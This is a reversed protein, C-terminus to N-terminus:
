KELKVMKSNRIRKYREYGDNTRTRTYSVYVKRKQSPVDNVEQTFWPTKTVGRKNTNIKKQALAEEAAKVITTKFKTWSTDVDDDVDDEIRNNGVKQEFSTKYFLGKNSGHYISEINIRFESTEQLKYKRVKTRAVHLVM